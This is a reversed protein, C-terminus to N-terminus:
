WPRFWPQNWYYRRATSRYKKKARPRTVDAPTEANAQAARTPTEKAWVLFDAGDTLAATNIATDAVILSSGPTLRESIKQRIEDPIEIRDLPNLESPQVAIEMWRARADGPAFKLATYLYTGLSKDPDRYSIPVDFVRKFDQRVFLHGAPEDTGAIEYIKKILDDTLAGTEPLSNARQFAKIAAVTAKGITGDFSQPELYGMTSLIKQVGVIRDRGTQRTVLVRLPANSRPEAAQIGAAVTGAAAATVVTSLPPADAGVASVEAKTRIVSSHAVDALPAPQFLNPHEALIPVPRGKAVVVHEGVTTVQFLKPAFSFTVRVCGHSAPYGPVVGGHLATGAWTLRQMWPMPAGSYINSHHYRRKELISFVGAKTAYGRMGSSVPASSLFETGRYVDIKQQSLSVVLTMPEGNAPESLLQEVYKGSKSEKGAEAPFAAPLLALLASVGLVTHSPFHWM